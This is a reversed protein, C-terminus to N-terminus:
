TLGEQDVTRRNSGHGLRETQALPGPIEAQERVLRVNECELAM